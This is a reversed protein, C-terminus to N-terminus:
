FTGFLWLADKSSTSRVVLSAMSWVEVSCQTVTVLLRMLFSGRHTPIVTVEIVLFILARCLGM